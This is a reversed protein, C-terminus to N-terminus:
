IFNEKLDVKSKKLFVLAGLTGGDVSVVAKGLLEGL